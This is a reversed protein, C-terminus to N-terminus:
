LSFLIKLSENTNKMLEFGNKIEDIPLVHSILPKLSLQGSALFEIAITFDKPQYCRTTLLGIERYHMAALNVTPPQKFVSVVVIQGQFKICDIMQDATIQSGAVEFVIDAGVGNTESKIVDVINEKTADIVDFGLEKAVQLRMPSIDSIIIRAAGAQRAILGVLLGIPGAGLITVTDGIKLSSRRVTHIAVALPEIMAAEQDDVSEPLLRLRNAPIAAYEAFGGDRDIGIYKLSSCVQAQGSVCAECSGCSLLPEVVVRDNKNFQSHGNENAVIGCFEHGLTLPAVARPHLGAYIMMDTGCIGGYTVKVLVENEKPKPTEINRVEVCTPSIYQGAKM